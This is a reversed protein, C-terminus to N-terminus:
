RLKARIRIYLPKVSWHIWGLIKNSVSVPLYQIVKIIKSEKSTVVYEQLQRDKWPSKSMYVRFNDSFPHNTNSYWPRITLMNTTYHIIKPGKVADELEKQTYYNEPKRLDCLEKYSYVALITMVDYCPPLVGTEQNFMGNLIDQDAYNIYYAYKKLYGELLDSININRLKELNILLVGANIYKAESSLGINKKYMNGICDKVGLFVKGKFDIADLAAINDTIITDCDLYLIKSVYKPLLQGSFLRTFVSIPWRKSVLIDPIGLKPVDIIVIHRDYQKGLKYLIGKNDESINDGLLYVRMDKISKNNEFLSILSIGMIWIYNNDCAYLINM